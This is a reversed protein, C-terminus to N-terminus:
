LKVANSAFDTSSMKDCAFGNKAEKIYNEMHGRQCYFRVVNKPQLTMNTVIFTFQFLLEGAPREMKVVVRHAKTWSAAQYMFERHYVERKHLNDPNLFSDALTQAISQLRANSKLRIVCKHRKAEVLEFLDPNAFGSDGRVVVLASLAWMEYRSLIRGM